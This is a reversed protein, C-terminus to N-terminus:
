GIVYLWIVEDGNSVTADEYSGTVENGNIKLVWRSNEGCDGNAIGQFTVERESVIKAEVGYISNFVDFPASVPSDKPFTVGAKKILLGNNALKSMVDSSLKGSSYAATADVTFTVVAVNPSLTSAPANTKGPAATPNGSNNGGENHKNGGKNFAAFSLMLAAALMIAIASKFFSKM